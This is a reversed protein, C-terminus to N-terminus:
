GTTSSTYSALEDVQDGRKHRAMKQQSGDDFSVVVAPPLTQHHNSHLKTTKACVVRRNKPPTM